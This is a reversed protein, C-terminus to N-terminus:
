RTPRRGGSLYDRELKTSFLGVRSFVGEMFQRSIMISVVWLTFYAVGGKGSSQKNLISLRCWTEMKNNPICLRVTYGVSASSLFGEGECRAKYAQVVRGM